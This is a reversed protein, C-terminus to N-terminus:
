GNGGYHRYHLFIKFAAFFSNIPFTILKRSSDRISSEGKNNFFISNLMNETGVRILVLRFRYFLHNTKKLNKSSHM